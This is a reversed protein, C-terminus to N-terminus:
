NKIEISQTAKLFCDSDEKCEYDIRAEKIVGFIRDKPDKEIMSQGDGVHLTLNISKEEDSELESLLDITAAGNNDKPTRTAVPLMSLDNFILTKPTETGKFVGYSDLDLRNVKVRRAGLIQPTNNNLAFMLYYYEPIKYIKGGLVTTEITVSLSAKKFQGKSTISINNKNKEYPNKWDPVTITIYEDLLNVSKGKPTECKSVLPFNNKCFFEPNRLTIEREYEGDKCKGWESIILDDETCIPIYECSRVSQPEDINEILRCNPKEKKQIKRTQINSSLCPSWEKIKYLDDQTCWSDKEKNFLIILGVGVISFIIIVLLNKKHNTKTKTM